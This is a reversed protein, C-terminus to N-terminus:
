KGKKPLPKGTKYSQRTFAQCIAISSGKPRGKSELKDACRHAKSNKPM